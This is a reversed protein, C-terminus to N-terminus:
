RWLHRRGTRSQIQIRVISSSFDHSFVNKKRRHGSESQQCAGADLFPVDLTIQLVEAAHREHQVVDRRTRFGYGRNFGELVPEARVLLTNGVREIFRDHFHVTDTVLSRFGAACRGVRLVHLGDM